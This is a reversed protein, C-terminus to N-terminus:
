FILAECYVLLLRYRYLYVPKSMQLSCKPAAIQQAVTHQLM